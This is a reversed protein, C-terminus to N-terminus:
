LYEVRYVLYGWFIKQTKKEVKAAEKKNAKRLKTEGPKKGCVLYNTKLSISSSVKAGETELKRKIVSRDLDNFTGTIVFRYGSLKNSIPKEFNKFKVGGDLCRNIM